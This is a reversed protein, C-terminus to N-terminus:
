QDAPQESSSNSAPPAQGNVQAELNKDQEKKAKRVTADVSEAKNLPTQIADRLETHKATDQNPPPANGCAALGALVLATLVISAIRPM